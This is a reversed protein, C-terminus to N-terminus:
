KTTSDVIVPAGGTGSCLGAWQGAKELCAAQFPTLGREGAISKRTEANAKDIALNRAELVKQSYADIQAQTQTSYGPTGFVVSRVNIDDGLLTGIATRLKDAYLKNLDPAPANGNADVTGLPNFDTFLSSTIISTLTPVVRRDEWVQFKSKGDVPKYAAWHEPAKEPKASWEIQVRICMSSQGSIRAWLGDKGVDTCADNLHNYTQGTSDWDDVSEWPKHSQWGAGTTRGTPKKGSVVIGVNSTPVQDICSVVLLVIGLLTAVAGLGASRGSKVVAGITLAGVSIILLVLTFIFLGM